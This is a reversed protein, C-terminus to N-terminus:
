SLQTPLSETESLPNQQCTKRGPLTFVRLTTYHRNPTCIDTLKCGPPTMIVLTCPTYAHCQVLEATSITWGYKGEYFLGMLLPQDDKCCIQIIHVTPSDISSRGQASSADEGSTLLMEIDDKNELYSIGYKCFCDIAIQESVSGNFFCWPMKTQETYVAFTAVQDQVSSERLKMVRQLSRPCNESKAICNAHCRKEQPALRAAKKWREHVSQEHPPRARMGIPTAYPLAHDISFSKGRHRCVKPYNIEDEIPVRFQLFSDTVQDDDVCVM